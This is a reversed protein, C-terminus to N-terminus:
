GRFLENQEMGKGDNGSSKQRSVGERKIKECVLIWKLNGSLKGKM